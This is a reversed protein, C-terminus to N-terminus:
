MRIRLGWTPPLVFSVTSGLRVTTEGSVTENIKESAPDESAWQAATTSVKFANSCRPEAQERWKPDYPTECTGLYKWVDIQVETEFNELEQVDVRFWTSCERCAKRMKCRACPLKNAHSMRCDITQWLTQDQCYYELHPCVPPMQNNVLGSNWPGLLRVRTKVRVLLEGAVIRSWLVSELVMEDITVSYSYSLRKLNETYPRGFRYHNMLLRAHQYRIRFDVDLYVVGNEQVCSPEDEYCWVDEPGEDLIVPHFLSCHHCLLWDPLDKQLAVLFRRREITQDDARLPELSQNGVVKLLTQSCLAFSAASSLPLFDRIHQLIEVPLSLLSQRRKRDPVRDPHIFRFKALFNVISAGIIKYADAVYRNIKQLMTPMIDIQKRILHINHICFGQLMLLLYFFASLTKFNVVACVHLYEESTVHDIRDASRLEGGYM